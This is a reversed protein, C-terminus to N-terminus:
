ELLRAKGTGRTLSGQWLMRTMQLEESGLASDVRAFGVIKCPENGTSHAKAGSGIPLGGSKQYINPDAIAQCSVQVLAHFLFPLLDVNLIENLPRSPSSSM